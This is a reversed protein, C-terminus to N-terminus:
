HILCTSIPDDGYLPHRETLTSQPRCGCHTMWSTRGLRHAKYKRLEGFVALIELRKGESAFPFSASTTINAYGCFFAALRQPLSVASLTTSYHNVVVVHNRWDCQFSQMKILIM